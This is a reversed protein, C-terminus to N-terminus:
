GMVSVDPRFALTILHAGNQSVIAPAKKDLIGELSLAVRGLVQVADLQGLMQQSSEKSVGEESQLNVSAIDAKVQERLLQIKQIERQRPTERTFIAADAYASETLGGARAIVDSLTEGQLFSYKGPLLVEGELTVTMEQMYDPLNRINIHDYFSISM